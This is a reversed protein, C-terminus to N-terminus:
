AGFGKPVPMGSFGGSTMAEIMPAMGELASVIGARDTELQDCFTRIERALILLDTLRADVTRAWAVLEPSSHIVELSFISELPDAESASLPALSHAHSVNSPM